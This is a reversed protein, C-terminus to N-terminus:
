FRGMAAIGAERASAVPLLTLRPSAEAHPAQAADGPQSVPHSPQDATFYLVAATVLAMAGVGFSVDTFLALREGRKATQDTPNADFHSREALVMFGLVTGTVLGTAGVISTVWLATTSPKPPATAPAPGPSATAAEAAVAAEERELAVGLELRAGIRAQVPVDKPKHGALTLRLRHDGRPVQLEVPTLQPTPQGDLEVMAGSPETTLALTAPLAALDTAKREVEARDPADPRDKLYRQLTLYADELKGLQVECEASSLLVIPNPVAAYAEAFAADAEAFKGAAFAAQGRTYAERARIRTEETTPATAPSAAGAAPQAPAVGAAQAAVAEAALTSVACLAACLMPRGVVAM